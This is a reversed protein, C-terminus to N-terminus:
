AAREDPGNTPRTHVGSESDPANSSLAEVFV